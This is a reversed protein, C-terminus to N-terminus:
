LLSMTQANGHIGPQWKGIEDRAESRAMGRDGSEQVRLAALRVGVQADGLAVEALDVPLAAREDEAQVVLVVRLLHLLREVSSM